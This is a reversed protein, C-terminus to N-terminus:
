SSSCGGKNIIIMLYHDISLNSLPLLSIFHFPSSHALPIPTLAMGGVWGSGRGGRGQVERKTWSEGNTNVNKNEIIM